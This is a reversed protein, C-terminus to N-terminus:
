QPPQSNGNSIVQNLTKFLQSHITRSHKNWRQWDKDLEAKLREATVLDGTNAAWIAYHLRTEASGFTQYAYVFEQQALDHQSNAAHCQALLVSVQEARFDPQRAKLQNLLSIAKDIENIHLNAKAAGFCVDPDDAFPGSLCADFQEAAETYRGADDLAAALQMRNQITPSIDFAAQAERLAKSPDLVQIAKSSAQKLGREVKSSPLYEVFFYVVSGLLPFSFLIILWYMNRGNKLAHIAFFLAVLIHLGLGVFPM